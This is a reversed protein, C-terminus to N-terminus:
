VFYTEPLGVTGRHKTLLRNELDITTEGIVDDSSVMDYDKISIVLDKELPLTAKIEFM